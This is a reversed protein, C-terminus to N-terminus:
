DLREKEIVVPRASPMEINHTSAILIAILFVAMFWTLIVTFYMGSATKCKCVDNRPM